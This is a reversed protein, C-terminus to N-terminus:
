MNHAVMPRLASEVFRLIMEGLEQPTGAWGSGEFVSSGIPPMAVSTKKETSQVSDEKEYAIRAIVEEFEEYEMVASSPTAGDEEQEVWVTGDEGHHYNQNFEDDLNVRIFLAKCERGTLRKDILKGDSLLQIFESQTMTPHVQDDDESETTTTTSIPRVSRGKGKKKAAPQQKTTASGKRAVSGDLVSYKMFLPKLVTERVAGRGASLLSQVEDSVLAKALDDKETTHLAFPRLHEEIVRKTSKVFSGAQIGTHVSVSVGLRVVAAIFERLQMEGDTGDPPRAAQGANGRSAKAKAQGFVTPAYSAEELNEFKFYDVGIPSRDQISRIFVQDVAADATALGPLRLVSCLARWEPMGISGGETGAGAIARIDSESLSSYYRFVTTLLPKERELLQVAAKWDARPEPPVFSLLLNRDDGDLHGDELATKVRAITESSVRTRALIKYIDRMEPRSVEGDEVACTIVHRLMLRDRVLDSIDITHWGTKVKRRRRKKPKAPAPEPEPEPSSERSVAALNLKPRGRFITQPLHRNKWKMKHVLGHDFNERQGTHANFWRGHWDEAPVAALTHMYPTPPTPPPTPVPPEPSPLGLARRTAVALNVAATGHTSVLDDACLQKFIKEAQERNHRLGTEPAAMSKAYLM